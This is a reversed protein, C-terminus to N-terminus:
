TSGSSDVVGGDAADAANPDDGLEVELGIGFSVSFDFEIELVRKDEIIVLTEGSSSADAPLVLQVIQCFRLTDKDEDWANSGRIQAKDVDYMLSLQDRYQDKPTREATLDLTIGSIPTECDAALIQSEYARGVGIEYQVVLEHESDLSFDATLDIYDVKWQPPVTPSSQTPPNKTTLDYCNCDALSVDSRM